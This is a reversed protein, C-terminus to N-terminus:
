YVKRVNNHRQIVVPGQIIRFEPKKEKSCDRTMMNREILASINEEICRGDKWETRTYNKSTYITKDGEVKVALPACDDRGCQERNQNRTELEMERAVFTALLFGLSVAVIPHKWMWWLFGVFIALGILVHM